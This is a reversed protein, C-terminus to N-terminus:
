PAPITDIGCRNRLDTLPQRIGQIDAKTQPNADMYGQVRSEIGDRPQGQLGTLFNNVDPHAFLYNSMATSVEGAVGARDAATCNPPPDAFAQPAAAFLLGAATGAIVAGIATRRAPDSNLLM